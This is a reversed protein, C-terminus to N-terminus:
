ISSDLLEGKLVTRNTDLDNDLFQRLITWSDLTEIKTSDLVQAQAFAIFLKQQQRKKKKKKKKKLM